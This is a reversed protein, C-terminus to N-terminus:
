WASLRKSQRITSNKSAARQQQFQMKKLHEAEIEDEHKKNFEESKSNNKSNSGVMSVYSKKSQVSIASTDSDESNLEKVVSTVLDKDSHEENNHQPYRLPQLDCSSRKNRMEKARTIAKNLDLLMPSQVSRDSHDSEEQSKQEKTKIRNLKKNKNKINNKTLITSYKKNTTTTTTQTTIRKFVSKSGVKKVMEKAKRESRQLAKGNSGVVNWPHQLKAEDM